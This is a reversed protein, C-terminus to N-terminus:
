DLAGAVEDEFAVVEGAGQAGVGDGENAAELRGYFLLEEFKEQALWSALGAMCLARRWGDYDAGGAAEWGHVDGAGPAIGDGGAAEQGEGGGRVAEATGVAAEAERRLAQTAAWASRMRMRWAACPLLVKAGRGAPGEGAGFGDM